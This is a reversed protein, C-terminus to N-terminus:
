GKRESATSKVVMSPLPATSRSRVALPALSRAMTPVKFPVAFNAKVSPASRPSLTAPM